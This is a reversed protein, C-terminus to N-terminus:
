KLRGQAQLREITRQLQPDAPPAAATTPTTAPQRRQTRTDGGRDQARSLWNVIFRRWNSKKAERPNASLWQHMASLQRGVDCAPYAEGWQRRDEDSIGAFGGGATWAVGGGKSKIEEPFPPPSSPTIPPTPSLPSPSAPPPTQVANADANQLVFADVKTSCNASCFLDEGKEWRRAAAKARKEGLRAAKVIAPSYWIGRNTQDILGAGRLEQLHHSAEETTGAGTMRVIQDLSLPPGDAQLFGKDPNTAM